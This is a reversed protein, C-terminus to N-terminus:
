ASAESPARTIIASMASPLSSASSIARACPAFETVLATASTLSSLATFFSTAAVTSRKPLISTSTL